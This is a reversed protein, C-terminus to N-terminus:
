KSPEWNLFDFFGKKPLESKEKLEDYKKNADYLQRKLDLIEMQLIQLDDKGRIEEEMKKSERDEGSSQEQPEEVKEKYKFHTVM